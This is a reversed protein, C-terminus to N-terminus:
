PLVESDLDFPAPAPPLTDPVRGEFPAPAPPLTDPVRGERPQDLVIRGGGFRRGKAGPWPCAPGVGPFRRSVQDGDMCNVRVPQYPTTMGTHTASWRAQVGCRPCRPQHPDDTWTGYPRFPDVTMARAVALAGTCLGLARCWSQLRAHYRGAARTGPLPPSEIAIDNLAARAWRRGLAAAMAHQDPALRAFLAELQFTEPPALEPPSHSLPAVARHARTM